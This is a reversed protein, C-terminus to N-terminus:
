MHDNVPALLQGVSLKEIDTILAATLSAEDVDDGESLHLERPFEVPDTGKDNTVPPVMESDRPEAAATSAASSVAIPAAPQSEERGSTADSSASTADDDDGPSTSLASAEVAPPVRQPGVQVGGGTASTTDSRLPPEKTDRLYPEEVDAAAALEPSGAKAESLEVAPLDTANRTLIELAAGEADELAAPASGAAQLLLPEEQGGASLVGGAAAEQECDSSGAMFGSSAGQSGDLESAQQADRCAQLQEHRGSSTAASVSAEESITNSAREVDLSLETNHKPWAATHQEAAEGPVEEEHGDVGAPKPVLLPTFGSVGDDVIPAVTSSTGGAAPTAGVEGCDVLCPVRAAGGTDTGSEPVVDESTHEAATGPAAAADITQSESAPAIDEGQSSEDLADATAQQETANGAAETEVLVTCLTPHPPRLALPPTPLSVMGPLDDTMMATHM